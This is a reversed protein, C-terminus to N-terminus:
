WSFWRNKCVFILFEPVNAQETIFDFDFQKTVIINLGNESRLVLFQIWLVHNWGDLVWFMDHNPSTNRWFTNTCDMLNIRFHICLHIDIDNAFIQAFANSLQFHSWNAFDDELLTFYKQLLKDNIRGRSGVIIRGDSGVSNEVVHVLSSEVM